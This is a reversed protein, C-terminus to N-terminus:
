YVVNKTFYKSCILSSLLLVAGIQHLLALEIPVHRILTFIGALLQLSLSIIIGVATLRLRTKGTSFLSISLAVAAIVLIYANIRHLFQVLVPNSLNKLVSNTINLDQPIFSDGMLPFSNYVQGAGLGAVLGGLYVQCFLLIIAWTGLARAKSLNIKGVSLYDRSYNSLFQWFILSYIIFATILHTALRFHSVYPNNILGSRVTYWGMFGQFALLALILLYPYIKGLNGKLYLFMMPLLFVLGTIRGLLRHIFETWYIFKFDALSMNFNHQTYEPSDRYKSFENDWGIGNLPPIIGTIPKWETISLGSDTLRTFGGVLIMLIVLLLCALLWINKLRYKTTNM